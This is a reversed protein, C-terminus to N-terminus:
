CRKFGNEELMQVRGSSKEYKLVACKGKQRKAEHRQFFYCIKGNHTTSFFLEQKGV